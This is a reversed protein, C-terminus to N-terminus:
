GYEKWVIRVYVVIFTLGSCIVGQLEAVIKGAMADECSFSESLGVFSVWKAALYGLLWCFMRGGPDDVGKGCDAAFRNDWGRKEVIHEVGQM